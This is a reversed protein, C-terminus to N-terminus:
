FNSSIITKLNIPFKFFWVKPFSGTTYHSSIFFYKSYGDRLTQKDYITKKRLKLLVNINDM